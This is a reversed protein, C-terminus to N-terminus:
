TPRMMTARAALALSAHEADSFPLRKGQIEQYDEHGKGALLVVDRTEAHRIAYLIAKARDMMSVPIKKMGLLIQEIIAQADETRPNDSTVVVQDAWEAAAGMLPRKGPDRDGGCGFVCWLRGGRERAIPALAQLAQELADPTHAYDVVVLPADQGGLAQMRGPAATLGSVLPVIADLRQGRALLTAMVGLINSVNFLGVTAIKVSAQASPTHLRFETGAHRTHIQNASLLTIDKLAAFKEPDQLTYGTLPLRGALHQALRVGAPDDLNIVAHKLGPWDFLRAKAAEYRAMDGHYDLHDRTLNTFLAVDVHLGNMRGQELGISSAEIVLATVKNQALQALHGQLQLADPTTLGTAAFQFRGGVRTGVGLTGIAAAKEGLQEFLTALWLASSTKGNTGTIAAVFMARDPHAYYASAIEGANRLLEPVALHALAWTADWVFDQAEYVIAM